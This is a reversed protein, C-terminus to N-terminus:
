AFREEIVNRFNKDMYWKILPAVLPRPRGNRGGSTKVWQRKEEAGGQKGLFKWLDEEQGVASLAPFATITTRIITGDMAIAIRGKSNQQFIKTVLNDIQTVKVHGGDPRILEYAVQMPGFFHEVEQRGGLALAQLYKDFSTNSRKRNSTFKRRRKGKARMKAYAETVGHYFGLAEAYGLNRAKFKEGYWRDSVEHWRAITGQAIKPVGAGSPISATGDQGADSAGPSNIVAHLINFFDDYSDQLEKAVEGSRSRVERVASAAIQEQLSLRASNIADLLSPM